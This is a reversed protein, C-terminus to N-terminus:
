RAYEVAKVERVVTVKIEGPYQINGQIKGAIQKALQLAGFDDIKEPVVFVRIERGASVAYSQKVGEFTNVLAEMEELRKLYKELTDRRAGPRAASIADAAAVIYAEPSAYPYEDHHSEMARIVAEEVGFKKLLKRGLEVHTGEVDHDIAKGIDHLLAAKKTVAVNIRLEGAMMGAIHAMEVSHQLVNQGYSTRYNLRGVLAVLEKPLDLVGVEYCAEEGVKKVHEELEGRTEEVKEEIKAPQIRGDKILKELTLKALERRYPDFSSLLITEPTDDVVVEVGTLREFTRINRGERGIIKGKIEENTIQVVSTTVDGIHERAYRQIATVVVEASKAEIAGAREREFRALAEGLERRNSEEIEAFLRQKAEEKSLGAVRELERVVDAERARVGARVEELKALEDKLRVAERTTTTREEALADERKQMREELRRVEEHRERAEKQADVLVSAATGKAAVVIEKAEAEARERLKGLEQEVSSANRKAFWVRAAYGLALAGAGVALVTIDM